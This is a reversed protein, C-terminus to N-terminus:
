VNWGLISGEKLCGKEWHSSVNLCGLGLPAALALVSTPSKVSYSPQKIRQIKKRVCKSIACETIVEIGDPRTNVIHKHLDVVPGVEAVM